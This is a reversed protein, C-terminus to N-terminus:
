TETTNSLVKQLSQSDETNPTEDVSPVEEVHTVEMTLDETPNSLM